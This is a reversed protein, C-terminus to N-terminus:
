FIGRFIERSSKSTAEVDQAGLKCIRYFCGRPEIIERDSFYEGNIFYIFLGGGVLFFM